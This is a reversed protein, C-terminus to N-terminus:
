NITAEGIQSVRYYDDTILNEVKKFLSSHLIRTGTYTDM